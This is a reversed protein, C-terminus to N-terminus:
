IAIEIKERKEAQKRQFSDGATVAVSSDSFYTDANEDFCLEITDIKKSTDMTIQKIFLHLLTKRQELPATSLIQNFTLERVQEFSVPSTNDETLELELRSKEARLKILDAQIEQMRGTFFSKDM